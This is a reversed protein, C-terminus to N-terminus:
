SPLLGLKAAIQAAEAAYNKFGYIIDYLDHTEKFM